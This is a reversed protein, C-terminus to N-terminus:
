PPSVSVSVTLAVATMISAHSASMCGGACGSEGSNCSLVAGGISLPPASLAASSTSGNCPADGSSKPAADASAMDSRLAVGKVSNAATGIVVGVASM